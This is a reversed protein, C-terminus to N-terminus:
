AAVSPHPESEFEVVTGFRHSIDEDHSAVLLATGHADVAQFLLDLFAERNRKDLAATPEDALVIAPDSILARAIAVRQQQGVSLTGANQMLLHEGLGLNKCLLRARQESEAVPKPWLTQFRLPLMINSLASLFPILALQQFIVGVHAARFMDRRAGRLSYIDTSAVRVNGEDPLKMGCLSALFTSKGSGSEGVLLTTQGQSLTGPVVSRQFATKDDWSLTLQSWSLVADNGTATM